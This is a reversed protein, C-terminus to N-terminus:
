RTGACAASSCPGVAVLGLALLGLAALGLAIFGWFWAGSDLSGSDLSGRGPPDTPVCRAACQVLGWLGLKNQAGPRLLVADLASQM